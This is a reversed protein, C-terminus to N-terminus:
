NSRRKSTPASASVQQFFPSDVVIVPTTIYLIVNRLCGQNRLTQSVRYDNDVISCQLSRLNPQRHSDWRVFSLIILTDLFILNIMASPEQSSLLPVVWNAIRNSMGRDSDIKLNYCTM